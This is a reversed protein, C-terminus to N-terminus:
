EAKEAADKFSADIGRRKMVAFYIGCADAEDHSDDSGKRGGCWGLSHAVECMMLKNANGNGTFDKKVAKANMKTLRIKNGLAFMQLVCLFGNYARAADAGKFHPVAEYFIEDVGRFKILWNSFRIFKFGPHADAQYFSKVGSYVVKGDIGLAWGLTTGLDLSLVQHEKQPEPSSVQYQGDESM